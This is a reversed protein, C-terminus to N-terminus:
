CSRMPLSSWVPQRWSAMLFLLLQTKVNVDLKATVNIIKPTNDKVVVPKPVSETTKTTKCATMVVAGIAILLITKSKRQVRKILDNM